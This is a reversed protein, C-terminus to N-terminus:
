LSYRNISVAYISKIHICACTGSIGKRSIRNPYILVMRENKQITTNKGKDTRPGHTQRKFGSVSFEQETL